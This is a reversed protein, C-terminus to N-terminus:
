ETRLFFKKLKAFFGEERLEVQSIANIATATQLPDTQSEEAFNNQILPATTPSNNKSLLSALQSQLSSLESQIYSIKELKDQDALARVKTESVGEGVAMLSVENADKPFLKTVKSSFFIKQGAGILTDQPFSFVEDGVLLVRGFLSIENNSSNSIEIRDLNASIVKVEPNIIKVKTRSVIEGEATPVKLVVIYEGPYEYTHSVLNGGSETGDGFNWKFIAGRGYKLNTEARFEMPTGVSGVRDRGASLTINSTSKSSVIPTAGYHASNPSIQNSNSSNSNDDTSNDDENNSSSSGSSSVVITQTASWTQGSTRGTGNITLSFTGVSSDKYYFTRNATNTNMTKTVSNGTAGLFEGTPSSSIFELDITEATPTSNGSSDQAQLTIPGSLEGPKISQPETTFELRSVQAHSFVPFLFLISGLLFIKKFSVERM